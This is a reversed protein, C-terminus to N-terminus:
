SGSQRHRGAEGQVSGYSYVGDAETGYKENDVSVSFARKATRM